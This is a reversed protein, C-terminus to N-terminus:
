RLTSGAFVKDAYGAHIFLVGTHWQKGVECNFMGTFKSVDEIPGNASDYKTFDQRKSYAFGGHLSVSIPEEDSFNYVYGVTGYYLTPNETSRLPHNMGLTLRINNTEVGAQLGAGINNIHIGAFPQATAQLAAMFVITSIIIQKM